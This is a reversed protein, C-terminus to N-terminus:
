NEKGENKQESGTKEALEETMENAMRLSFRNMLEGLDMCERYAEVFGSLLIDEDVGNALLIMGKYSRLSEWSKWSIRSIVTTRNLMNGISGPRSYNLSVGASRNEAEIERITKGKAMYKHYVRAARFDGNRNEFFQFLARIDIGLFAKVLLDKKGASLIVRKLRDLVFRKIQVVDYRNGYPSNEQVLEYNLHDILCVMEPYTFEDVFSETLGYLETLPEYMDKKAAQNSWFLERAPTSVFETVISAVTEPDDFCGKDTIDRIDKLTTM